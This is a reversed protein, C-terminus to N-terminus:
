FCLVCTPREFFTSGDNSICAVLPECRKTKRQLCVLVHSAASRNEGCLQIMIREIGLTFERLMFHNCCLPLRCSHDDPM